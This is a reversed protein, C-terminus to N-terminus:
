DRVVREVQKMIAAHGIVETTKRAVFSVLWGTGGAQAGLGAMPLAKLAMVGALALLWLPIAAVSGLALIALPIGIIYAYFTDVKFKGFRIVLRTLLVGLLLQAAAVLFGTLGQDVLAHLLLDFFATIFRLPFPVHASLYFARIGQPHEPAVCPNEVNSLNVGGAASNGRLDCAFSRFLLAQQEQREAFAQADSNGQTFVIAIYRQAVNWPAFEAITLYAKARVASLEARKQAEFSLDMIAGLVISVVVSIALHVIDKRTFLFM